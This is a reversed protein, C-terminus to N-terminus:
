VRNRLLLARPWAINRRVAIILVGLLALVTGVAMRVDFHDNTLVIGFAITFLPSM